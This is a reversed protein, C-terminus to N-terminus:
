VAMDMKIKPHPDYGIIELDEMKFDEILEVKRKFNLKPFPKPTRKLQELLAERHNLYIHADGLTHM